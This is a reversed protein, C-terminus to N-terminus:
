VNRLGRLAIAVLGLGLLALPGPAPVGADQRRFSVGGIGGNNSIANWENGVNDGDLFFANYGDYNIRIQDFGPVPGEQAGWNADIIAGGLVTFGFGVQTTWDTPTLNLDIAGTLGPTYSDVTVLEPLFTGDGDPLVVTGRAEGILKNAGFFESDDGVIVFDFVVSASAVTSWAAFTFIAFLRNFHKLM